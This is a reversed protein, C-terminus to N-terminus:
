GKARTKRSSKARSFGGGAAKRSTAVKAPAPTGPSPSPSGSNGEARRGLTMLSHAQWGVLPLEGTEALADMCPQAAVDGVAEFPPLDPGEWGRLAHMAAVWPLKALHKQRAVLLEAYVPVKSLQLEILSFNALAELDQPGAERAAVIGLLEEANAPSASLIAARAATLLQADNPYLGAIRLMDAEYEIRQHYSLPALLYTRPSGAPAFRQIARPTTIPKESV